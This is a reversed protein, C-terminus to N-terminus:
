GAKFKSPAKGGPPAEKDKSPAEQSPQAKPQESCGPLLLMLSVVFFVACLLTRM